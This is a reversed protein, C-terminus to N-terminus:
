EKIAEDNDGSDEQDGFEGSYDFDELDEYGYEDDNDSDPSKGELKRIRQDSDTLMDADVAAARHFWELAEERRDMQELVDAYAYRIRASWPEVSTVTLDPCQLTALAADLNGMDMRAGAAVIRMEVRSAHDLNKVLPDGAMEIAKMPRGCARECDAMLPWYEKIGRMRRAARFEILAEAFHGANYAAEAAAERIIGVRSAKSLAAKAHQWSIEPNVTAAEVSAALHRAVRLALGEPLTRLENRVARPLEEGTIHDPIIPDQVNVRKEGVRGRPREERDDAFRGGARDPRGGRESYRSGGRDDRSPRDDRSGYSRGAPRRDDSAKPRDGGFPNDRRPRDSSPRSSPRSDRDGYSRGAPRDSSPRRDDRREPRDGYSRGAPRDSSPRSDRDGYSRSPRDSRDSSPRSSPRSDRDGYSRGAPRDSRPRSDRDGYSRSPRDARDSSPRSSPRSDRDGYSRSPRDSRDSSPRSSPRSDRDGYSRGAPRDSSPRSDRSGYSREGRDSSPRSSPRSSDGRSTNSSGNRRDSSRGETSRGSYSSRDSSDRGSATRGGSSAGDRYSGSPRSSGPRSSGPRSSSSGGRSGGSSPRGSSPRGSSSRPSSSRSSSGGRSSPRSGSYNDSSM